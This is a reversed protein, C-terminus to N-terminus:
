MDVGYGVLVRKKGMAAKRPASSLAPPFKVRKLFYFITLEVGLFVSAGVLSIVVPFSLM